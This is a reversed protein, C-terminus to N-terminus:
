RGILIWSFRQVDRMERKWPTESLIHLHQTNFTIWAKISLMLYCIWYLCFHKWLISFLRVHISYLTHTHTHPPLWTQTFDYLQIGKLKSSLHANYVKLELIWIADHILKSQSCLEQSRQKGIFKSLVWLILQYQKILNKKQM